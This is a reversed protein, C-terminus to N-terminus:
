IRRNGWNIIPLLRGGVRNLLGIQVCSCEKASNFFGIQLGRIKQAHNAIGAIQIGDVENAYNTVGAVQVGQISTARNVIGAIQAVQITDAFNVIGGIQLALTGDPTTNSIGSIQGIGNRTHSAFSLVGGIQLGRLTDATYNYVGAIQTGPTSGNNLNFLGAIQIGRVYERTFNGVGGIELKDVGRAHGALINLSWDNAVKGSLTHNTGLMPLFSVQWQRHLSDRLNLDHWKEVTADFFRNIHYRVRQFELELDLSLPATDRPIEQLDLKVFRPSQPRVQLITDRFNLKSVVIDASRNVKLNYYGNSDTTTARLTKKDYVTAGAIREGTKPDKIYGSLQAPTQKIKKIILYNGNSRFDYGKGLLTLMTERITWDKANLSVKKHGDLINANYSWEFGGKQAIM